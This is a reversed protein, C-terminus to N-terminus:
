SSKTGTCIPCVVEGDRRFRWGAIRARRKCESFTRGTYQHPFERFPHIGDPFEGNNVCYLDLTYCGTMM